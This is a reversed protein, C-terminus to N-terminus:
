TPGTYLIAAPGTAPRQRAQIANKHSGLHLGSATIRAAHAPKYPCLIFGPLTDGPGNNVKFNEAAGGSNGATFVPYNFRDM